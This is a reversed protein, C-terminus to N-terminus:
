HELVTTLMRTEMATKSSPKGPNLYREILLNAIPAAYTAGFGGNEIIVAIAIKPNDKPAFAIFLSHDKGHTNQATGTKGCIEIDTIGTGWATGGPKFVESMGQVVTEFHVKDITTYHKTRYKRIWDADKVGEINKVLHPSIYYGRNALIGAINALQLPTLLIEGQGIGLSVIMSSRWRDGHRRNLQGVTPINGGSEGLLDIGTPSGLGFSRWHKELQAYGIKVDNYKPNDIINRFLNCYYSNCSIRISGVVDLPGGHPHCGVVISGMRYGGSCGYTSSPEIVGEQLGILALVTKITSGPPYVGKVARNYLPKKPDILMSRFSKGRNQGILDNPNFDPKNVFALVEGSNPEIAVVSGRKGSLLLEAFKQLEIDLTSIVNPGSQAPFNFSDDKVLGREKYTRDQWVTKIGKVGRMWLEYYKEIGTIGVLDGPQYYADTKLLSESAEGLYGLAHAGGVIEYSRDSRPEIFLGKLRFLNERIVTYQKITLNSYFLASKNFANNKQRKKSRLIADTFLTNFKATDIELVSCMFPTNIQDFDKPFIYLDYIAYNKVIIKGNRDFIVSRAPYLTIKNLANNVAKEEYSNDGLQLSGIKVIFISFVIIIAIIFVSYRNKYLDQM